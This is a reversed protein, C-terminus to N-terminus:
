SLKEKRKRSLGVLSSKVKREHIFTKKARGHELIIVTAMMNLSLDTLTLAHFVLLAIEDDENLEKVWKIMATMFAGKARFLWGRPWDKLSKTRTLKYKSGM